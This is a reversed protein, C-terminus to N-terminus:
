ATAEVSRFPLRVRTPLHRAALVAAGATLAGLAVDLLYHNGTVLVVWTVLLPYLAWAVKAARRRVLRALPWGVMLAFGVHMSPVAAYLNFFAGAGHRDDVGTLDRVPDVVGLGPVLRPPAAPVLVYGVIAIGMAIVLANRVPGYAHTRFLYIWALAATTIVFHSNVYLWAALDLLGPAGATWHQLGPEVFLGLSKEWGIIGAANASALASADGVAGRALRYLGYAAAFLLVQRLADVRGRPLLRTRRIGVRGALSSV